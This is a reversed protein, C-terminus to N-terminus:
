GQYKKLTHNVKSDNNELQVASLGQNQIYDTNFMSHFFGCISCLGIDYATNDRGSHM